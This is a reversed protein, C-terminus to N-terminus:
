RTTPSGQFNLWRHQKYDYLKCERCIRFYERLTLRQVVTHEPAQQELLRQSAPLEYLPIRADIHHAAHDMINHLIRELPWPLIMHTSSTLQVDHFDWDSEKDYWITRPHTHQVFSATGMFYIWIMWPLAVAALAYLKRPLGPDMTYKALTYGIWLQVLVFALVLLRDLQFATNHTSRNKGNPFLIYRRYFDLLYCLGVGPASRYVRELRKRWRPLLDFEEKSLPAFDPHKGKLCTGGHHLVNHAYCWSTYPHYAPLLALRGIIPELWRWRTLSHHAADHGIVFLAGIVFPQCLLCGVRMWGAPLLFTGLFFAAYISVSRFFIWSGRRNSSRRRDPPLEVKWNWAAEAASTVQLSKV